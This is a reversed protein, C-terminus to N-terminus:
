SDSIVTGQCNLSCAGNGTDICEKFVTRQNNGNDKQNINKHQINFLLIRLKDPFNCFTFCTFVGLSTEYHYITVYYTTTEM